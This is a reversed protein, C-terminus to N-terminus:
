VAASVLHVPRRQQELRAAEIAAKEDLQDDDLTAYGPRRWPDPSVSYPARTTAMERPSPPRGTPGMWAFGREGVRCTNGIVLWIHGGTDIAVLRGDRDFALRSGM